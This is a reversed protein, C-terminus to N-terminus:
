LLSGLTEKIEDPTRNADVRTLLDPWCRQYYEIVAITEEKFVKLRNLIIEQEDDSRNRKQLRSRLIVEPVELYILRPLDLNTKEIWLHLNELNRPYGDILVPGEIKDLQEKIISLTLAAPVILGFLVM